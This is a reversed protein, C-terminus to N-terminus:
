DATSSFNMVKWPIVHHLQSPQLDPELGPLLVQEQTRGVIECDLM